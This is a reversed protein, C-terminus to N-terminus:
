PLRPLMRSPCLICGSRVPVAPNLLVSISGVSKILINAERFDRVTVM